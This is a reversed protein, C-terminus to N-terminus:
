KLIKQGYTDLIHQFGSQMVPSLNSDFGIFVEM